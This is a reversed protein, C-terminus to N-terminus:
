NTLKKLTTQLLQTEEETINHTSLWIEIIKKVILTNAKTIELTENYSESTFISETEQIKNILELYKQAVADTNYGRKHYKIVRDLQRLIGSIQWTEDSNFAPNWINPHVIKTKHSDRSLDLTRQAKLCYGVSILDMDFSSLVSFINNCNKKLIINIEICTNYLFKITTVGSHHKGSFQEKKRFQDSKWKELDNSITLMKNHYLEYYLETFAPLNYAFIDIDQKQGEMYGLMSSGTICADIKLSKAYELAAEFQEKM